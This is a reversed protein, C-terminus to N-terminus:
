LQLRIVDNSVVLEGPEHPFPYSSFAHYWFVVSTGQESSFPPSELTCNDGKIGVSAETYM